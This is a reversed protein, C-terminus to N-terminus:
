YLNTKQLIRLVCKKLQVNWKNQIYFVDDAFQINKFSENVKEKFDNIYLLFILLGFITGQYNFQKIITWESFNDEQKVWPKRDAPLWDFMKAANNFIRLWNAEQLFNSSMPIQCAKALDFFDCVIKQPQLSYWSIKPMTHIKWMVGFFTNM